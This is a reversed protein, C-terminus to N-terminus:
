RRSPFTQFVNRRKMPICSKIKFTTFSDKRIPEKIQFTDDEILEALPWRSTEYLEHFRICVRRYYGKIQEQIFQLLESEYEPPIFCRGNVKLTFSVKTKRFKDEWLTERSSEM